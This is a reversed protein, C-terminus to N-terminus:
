VYYATNTFVKSMYRMVTPVPWPLETAGYQMATTAHHAEDQAMAQFLSHTKTDAPDLKALHGELHRAVQRETAELFGLSIADGWLGAFAGIAVSGIFWVPTLYSSRGHLEKLRQNCWALHDQEEFIARTLLNLTETSRAGFAQGLYLGQACVEGAHNIRTFAISQDLARNSLSPEPLDRAPYPRSPELRDAGRHTLMQGISDLLLDLASLKRNLPKM